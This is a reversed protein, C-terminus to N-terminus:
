RAEMTADRLILRLEEALGTVGLVLSAVGIDDPKITRREIVISRIKREAATVDITVATGAVRLALRESFSRHFADGTMALCLRVHLAQTFFASSAMAFITRPRVDAEIMRFRREVQAARVDINDALTAVDVFDPFTQRLRAHRAMAGVVYVFPTATRVARRAVVRDLPASHREVM